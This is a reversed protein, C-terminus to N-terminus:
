FPHEIDLTHSLTPDSCGLAPAPGWSHSRPSAARSCLCLCHVCPNHLALSSGPGSSCNSNRSDSLLFSKAPLSVNALRAPGHASKWGESVKMSRPKGGLIGDMAELDRDTLSASISAQTFPLLLLLALRASGSGERAEDEVGLSRRCYHGSHSLPPLRNEM